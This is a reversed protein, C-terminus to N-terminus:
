PQSHVKCLCAIATFNLKQFVSHFTHTHSDILVLSGFRLRSGLVLGVRTGVCGM